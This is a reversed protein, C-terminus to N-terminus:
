ARRIRLATLDRWTYIVAVTGAIVQFWGVVPVWQKIIWPAGAEFKATLTEPKLALRLGPRIFLAAVFVTFIVKGWDIRM